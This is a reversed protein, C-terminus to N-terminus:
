GGFNMNLLRHGKKHSFFFYEGGEAIYSTTHPKVVENNDAKDYTFHINGNADVQWGSDDACGPDHKDVKKDFDDDLGNDCASRAPIKVSFASDRFAKLTKTVHAKGYKALFQRNGAKAPFSLSCNLRFPDLPSNYDDGNYVAQCKMKQKDIFIKKYAEPIPTSLRPNNDPYTVKVQYKVSDQKLKLSFTRDKTPALSKCAKEKFYPGSACVKVKTKSYDLDFSQRGKGVTDSDATITADKAVKGGVKPTVTYTVKDPHSNTPPGGGDDGDGSGGGGHDPGIPNNGGCSSLAIMVTLVLAVIFAGRTDNILRKM